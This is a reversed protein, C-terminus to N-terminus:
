AEAATARAVMGRWSTTTASVVGGSMAAAPSRARARRPLRSM